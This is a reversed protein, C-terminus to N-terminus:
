SNGAEQTACWDRALQSFQAGRDAFNRFWDYSACGPSLLVIDGKASHEVAWKFAQQLSRCRQMPPIPSQLSASEEILEELHDATQGMLAVGKARRAIAEAMPQLDVQKDYGGALLVVPDTFAELAVITSEPTTALSDNFFRRGRSEAVFELRHPLPVYEELGRQIASLSVGVALVACVAGLANQYNHEGPLKLWDRLPVVTEEGSVRCIATGDSRAFVGGAGRDDNGFHLVRGFTQWTSVDPDDANLVAVGCPTQWRLITQKARRYDALSGHWDLHNPSFNTVISIEPSAPLRNLDELQFSSLELVTWDDPGIQDVEELLSKGINGGLRSTLGAARLISHTLAATTSKGNSGTVGVVRGAHHQWFLNMESTLLVGSEEALKVYRNHRPIAPNVVLLDAESFDEDRHEGLHCTEITCGRLAELSETLQDAPQLDTITVIAGRAALFRAAGIGGGFRGLGMVTARLGRFDYLPLSLNM